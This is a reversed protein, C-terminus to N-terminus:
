QGQDREVLSLARSVDVVRLEGIHSWRVVGDLDVIEAQPFLRAQYALAADPWLHVFLLSNGIHSQRLYDPTFADGETDIYAIRLARPALAQLARLARWNAQCHPCERTFTYVLTPRRDEGYTLVRAKGQWDIGALSPAISGRRPALLQLEAAAEARLSRNQRLALLCAVVLLLNLAILGLASGLSITINRSRLGPREPTLWPM